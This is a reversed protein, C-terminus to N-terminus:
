KIMYKKGNKIVIGKYSGDVRQGAMNYIAETDKGAEADVGAIGTTEGDAVISLRVNSGSGAAATLYVDGADLSGTYNYFGLGDATTYALIYAGDITGATEAVKLVNASFDNSSSATTPTLTIKYDTTNSTKLIVPTGAPIVRDAEMKTLSVYGKEPAAAIYVETNEDAEYNLDANYFTKYGKLNASSKKIDAIKVLRFRTASWWIDKGNYAQVGINVDSTESVFFEVSADNWGRDFVGGTNGIRSIEKVASGAFVQFGADTTTNARATVTLLYKGPELNVTQQIGANNDSKYIDAYKYDNKGDGDTFSQNSLLQITGNTQGIVAWAGFKKNTGDYTVEMNPDSITIQTAGAVGEALANSEVYKRYASVVAATKATADNASIADGATQATAIAAFKTASAYPLEVYTADKTTVWTDYAGKAATFTSTATEIATKAADYVTSTGASVDTAIADSLASRESGIINVYQEDALASEAATKTTEYAAANIASNDATALLAFNCAGIWSNNVEGKLTLTVETEENLEILLYRWEWGRGNNNNAFGAADAADFSTAGAKNIGLGTDGNMPFYVTSTGDTLYVKSASNAQGRGAARIIYKGEPLKIKYTLERSAASGNWFDFYSQTKGSWHQANLADFTNTTPTALYTSSFDQPYESSIYDYEEVKISKVAAVADSSSSPVSTSVTVGLSEAYAKEAVYSDYSAKAATFADITAQATTIAANYATRTEAAATLSSLAELNTREVGVINEYTEDSALTSAQTKLESLDSALATLDAGVYTLRFNDGTMWTGGISEAKIGINVSGNKVLLVPTTLDAYDKGMDVQQRTGDSYIYVYAGKDNSDHAYATASYKGNPLGAVTQYYDISLNTVNNGAWGELQTDGTGETRHTNGANARGFEQWGRPINDQNANYINANYIVGSMDLPNDETVADYVEPSVYKLEFDDLLMAYHQDKGSAGAVMYASITLPTEASEKYIVVGNNLWEAASGANTNTVATKNGEQISLTWKSNAPSSSSTKIKCTLMYLGAPLQNEGAAIVQQIGFNGTANWNQRVYFYKSDATAGDSGSLVSLTSSKNVVAAQANSVSTTPLVTWGTVKANNLGNTTANSVANDSEFSPNTIVSTVDTWATQAKLFNGGGIAGVVCLAALLLKRKM